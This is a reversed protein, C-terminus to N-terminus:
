VQINKLDDFIPMFLILERVVFLLLLLLMYCLNKINYIILSYYRTNHLYSDEKLSEHCSLDEGLFFYYICICM